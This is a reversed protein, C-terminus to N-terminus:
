RPTRGFRALQATLDDSEGPEITLGYGSTTMRFTTRAAYYRGTGDQEVGRTAGDIMAPVAVMANPRVNWLDIIGGQLNTITNRDPWFVYAITTPTAGAWAEVVFQRGEYVGWAFRQNSSNGQSLLSEIKQLYTTNAEILRTDLIGSTAIRASTTSLFNNTAGIGPSATGILAVAQTTTDENTTDTRSTLVWKLTDYWGVFRVTIEALKTQTSRTQSLKASAKRIPWAKTALLQARINQAGTPTASSVTAIGDKTGYLEASDTNTSTGTSLSVRNNETYQVSWRNAMGDLSRSHEEGGLVVNVTTLQGEWCREGGPGFVVMACGLRGFWVSAQDPPALFSVSASEFGFQDSISWTLEDAVRAINDIVSATPIGLAGREYISIVFPLM